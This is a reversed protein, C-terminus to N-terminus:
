EEDYTDLFHHKEGHEKYAIITSLNVNEVSRFINAEIVPSVKALRAILEKVEQRKSTKEMNDREAECQETFRCACRLFTLDNYDRWHLIDKERVLYLPRILEMGEFNTSHLKPMMTQIQGGYLMGMLITEIVDDYHHGLAIKNCGLEQAWHYLHGRRMRACLYCPNKEIDVVADFIESEFIRIPIHMLAANEEIQRRNAPNYGPDMVLFEVDFEFKNHRKLEQFLKAMLMSDKGGSICVAIKDGPKVLEYVNIAKTFKCWIDKHFKKNISREIEKYREM